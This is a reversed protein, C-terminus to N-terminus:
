LWVCVSMSGSRNALSFHRTREPQASAPAAGPHVLVAFELARWM